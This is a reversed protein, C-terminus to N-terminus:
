LMLKMNAVSLVSAAALAGASAFDQHTYLLSAAVLITLTVVFLVPFIRAIRRQYFHAISFTNSQTASFIISTILYGSIAFFVDVGVFGGPLLSTDLHFVLVALVAIARM